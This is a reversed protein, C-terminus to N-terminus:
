QKKHIRFPPPFFRCYELQAIGKFYAVLRTIDSGRFECNGNVDGAVYLYHNGAISDHYCSDDLPGYMGRFYRVGFTVDAGGVAGDVNIDGLIYICHWNLRVNFLTTDNTNVPIDVYFTDRYDPHACNLRYNGSNLNGVFYDGGIGSTDRASLGEISIVAGQIPEAFEDAVIGAIAGASDIGSVAPIAFTAAAGVVAKSFNYFFTPMIHTMNDSTTHYYPNFDSSYDEIGLFAAYGYDWFSAHDSAGTAGAGIIDPSLNIGYDAVATNFLNGLAQSAGGTGCHLEASGDGNGDYSIMDFNFVGIISDGRHFAEEAYAASGYLGQEEGSWLCFKITKEFSISAMVRAAEIVGITGSGNDDAGPASVLPQQSTNDYHGCVIVQQNQNTTGPKTAIVNKWASAIGGCQNQWTQGGDSTKALIGTGVAYGTLSDAFEVGYFDKSFGTNISQWSSGGNSTIFVEGSWGVICGHLSDAFDVHYKEIATGLNVTQWTTGGNTTHRVVGAWGVAWGNNRNIFDVGYLRETTNSTQRVWSLGGDTSRVIVGNRGVAWGYLSDVFCVDYYRSTIPTTNRSWSVGANTTRYILGSDAAIWGKLPNIFSSGFFFGGTGASQAIFSAGGNNSFRIVGADGSIWISDAGIHSVGWMASSVGIPMVTWSLGGNTTRLAEGNESVTWARNANYVAVHRLGGGYYGHYSTQYGYSELTQKIYAAAVGIDATGSYRTRITDPQGGINVPLQGSLRSLHDILSDQNVQDILSDIRANYILALDAPLERDAFPLDRLFLRRCFHANDIPITSLVYNLGKYLILKSDVNLKNFDVYCLYLPSNEEDFLITNFAVGHDTLWATQDTGGGLYIKDDTKVWCRGPFGALNEILSTSKDVAIIYRDSEAFLVGVFVGLLLVLIGLQRLMVVGLLNNVRGM